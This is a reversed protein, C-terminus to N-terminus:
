LPALGLFVLPVCARMCVCAGLGRWRECWGGATALGGAGLCAQQRWGLGRVGRPGCVSWGGFGERGGSAGGKQWGASVQEEAYVFERFLQNWMNAAEVYQGGVPEELPAEITQFEAGTPPCCM